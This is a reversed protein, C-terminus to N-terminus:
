LFSRFHKLFSRALEPNIETQSEVTLGFLNSGYKAVLRDKKEDTSTFVFFDGQYRLIFGEHFDGELKLDPIMPPSKSGLVKKKFEDYTSSEYEMLFNGLSDKGQELQAINLDLIEEQNEVIARRFIEDVNRIATRWKGVVQEM